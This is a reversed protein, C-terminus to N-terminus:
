PKEDLLSLMKSVDTTPLNCVFNHCVYATAAGGLSKQAATYDAIASISPSEEQGPRFLVVNNPFFPKNLAGTMALTDTGDREGAIVIEYTPGEAFDLALLMLAFNSPGRALTEGFARATANAKDELATDGTMRGLRLLNYAAVSNGSPIAGDYATKPRVILPEGDDATMFFGGESDDWYQALMTGNLAVAQQLYGADFTSEYLELLGWVLFAYDEQQAPLGAEGQRYRHHLRGDPARMTSLLFDADKRAAATFEPADLARGAKALAAIMLGNWDTLIKDDKYPHERQERVAFLKQRSAELRARLTAEDTGHTKALDAWSASLHPINSHQERGETWNGAEEFGYVGTYLAGEEEGLVDLAEALTWVYFKGEVGESDADEASYFGGEPATMDRLVYTLIEKATGAYAANGTAQAAETYAMALLAQDYLMKEFHPVLWNPDTSYRHFGLGVQDYMGGRRMETLTKEVMVLAQAEGTRKWYRLLYMLRHPTPFKPATDFGGREADYTSTHETYAKALLAAPEIDGPKGGSQEQLFDTIGKASEAFKEPSETYAETIKPLLEMMGIRGSQSQKPFYTGAFVPMRDPTLIVTMPWGGSGTMAQTVTMYIEDIDPREERDVKIAVFGANMLAAVEPDEFSEHEMVHCWHCTSYGVSLFVLKGEERAKEFAADGWPYWDVPNRAHQLLYPSKEFILRNFEAGGDPPLEAIRETTPLPPRTGTEEGHVPLAFTITSCFLLAVPAFRLSWIPSM